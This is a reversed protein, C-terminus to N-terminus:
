QADRLTIAMRGARETMVGSAVRRGNRTRLLAPTGLTADAVLVDGVKLHTVHDLTASGFDMAVELPMELDYLADDRPVLMPVSTEQRVVDSGILGALITRDIAIDFALSELEIHCTVSGFRPDILTAPWPMDEVQAATSIGAQRLIREVLDRLADEGISTALSRGKGSAGAVDALLEGLASVDARGLSLLVASGNSWHVYGHKSGRGDLSAGRPAGPIQWALGWARVLENLVCNASAFATDGAWGFQIPSM